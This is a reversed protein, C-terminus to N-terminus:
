LGLRIGDMAGFRHVFLYHNLPYYKIDSNKQNGHVHIAIGFSTSPDFM